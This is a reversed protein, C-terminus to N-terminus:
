DGLSLTKADLPSLFNQRGNDATFARPSVFSNRESPGHFHPWGCQDWHDFWVAFHNALPRFGRWPTESCSSWDNRPCWWWWTLSHPFGEWGSLFSIARRLHPPLLPLYCEQEWLRPADHPTMLCTRCLRHRCHGNKLSVQESDARLCLLCIDSRLPSESGPRKPGLERFLQRFKSSKLYATVDQTVFGLFDAELEDYSPHVSPQFTGAWVCPKEDKWLGFSLVRKLLNQSPVPILAPNKHTNDHGTRLQTCCYTKGDHDLKALCPERSQYLQIVSSYTAHFRQKAAEVDLGDRRVEGAQSYAYWLLVKRVTTWFQEPSMSPSAATLREFLHLTNEAACSSAVNRSVFNELGSYVQGPKGFQTVMPKFNFWFDRESFLVGQEQRFRCVVEVMRLLENHFENLSAEFCDREKSHAIRLVTVSSFIGALDALLWDLEHNVNFAANEFDPIWKNQVLILAPKWALSKVAQHAQLAFRRIRDVRETRRPEVTDFFVVVDSLLYAMPPLREKIVEQRRVTTAELQQQLADETLGAMRLANLKRLGVELLTKPTRGDEGEVDFLLIPRSKKSGSHIAARHACVHASTPVHQDPSAVLPLVGDNSQLFTSSIFSKGTGTPGLLSVVPLPDTSSTQILRCLINAPVHMRDCHESLPDIDIKLITSEELGSVDTRNIKEALGYFHIYDMNPQAAKSGSPQSAKSEAPQSAKNQLWRLFKRYAGKDAGNEVLADRLDDAQEFSIALLDQVSHYGLGTFITEHSSLAHEDLMQRLCEMACLQPKTWPPSPFDFMQECFECTPLHFRLICDILICASCPNFHCQTSGCGQLLFVAACCMVPIKM